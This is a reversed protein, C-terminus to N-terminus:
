GNTLSGFRKRLKIFKKEVVHYSFLSLGITISFAVLYWPWPKLMDLYMENKQPYLDGALIIGAWHMVYLSYSLKGIYILWKKSLLTNVVQYKKYLIVPPIILMLSLGQVTYRFSNRFFDGRLIFTSVIVLFAITITAFNNCLWLYIKSNNNILIASLCGFLISDYRCHSLMYTPEYSPDAYGSLLPSELIIAYYLRTVLAVLILLTLIFKFSKNKYFFLFIIPYILYFHEEVALSWFINFNVHESISGAFYVLYYNEFYFMVSLLEQWYVAHKLVILAVPFIILMLLLPPYLRILRRIYFRKLNLKGTDNYEAVLLRTILFGSLFFFLMVGFGGPVIKGLGFHAALVILIAVARLGDLSPLYGNTPNSILFDKPVGAKNQSFPSGSPAGLLEKEALRVSLSKNQKVINEKLSPM